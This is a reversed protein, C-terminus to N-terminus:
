DPRDALARAARGLAAATFIIPYLEEYYWLKAFYFGIPAPPFSRGADTHEVLWRAGAALPAAHEARGTATWAEALAEVALATEEISPEIGEAGGWGGDPGQARRLWGAGAALM